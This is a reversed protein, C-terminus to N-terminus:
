HGKAVVRSEIRNAFPVGRPVERTAIDGVRHNDFQQLECVARRTTKIQLGPVEYQNLVRIQALQEHMYRKILRLHAFREDVALLRHLRTTGSRMPGVIVVPRSLARDGIEPHSRFWHETWLRERLTKLLQGYAGFRGVVNLEAEDRLAALLKSGVGKSQHASMVGMGISAAHMRRPTKTNTHLGANGIVTGDETCAVLMLPADPASLRDRWLQPSAYPLQLTGAIVSPDTFLATLGDADALVARRITYSM